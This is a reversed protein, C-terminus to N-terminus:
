DGASSSGVFQSFENWKFSSHVSKETCRSANEGWGFCVDPRNSLAGDEFFGSGIKSSLGVQNQKPRSQPPYVHPIICVVLM